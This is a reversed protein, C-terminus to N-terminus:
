APTLHHHWRGQRLAFNWRLLVLEQRTLITDHTCVNRPMLQANRSRLLFHKQPAFPRHHRDRFHYSVSHPTVGTQAMLLLFRPPIQVPTDYNLNLTHLFPHKGQQKKFGNDSPFKVNLTGAEMDLIGEKPSSSPTSESSSLSRSLRPVSALNDRM